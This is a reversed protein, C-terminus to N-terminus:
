SAGHARLASGLMYAVAKDNDASIEDTCEQTLAVATLANTIDSMDRGAAIGKILKYVGVGAAELQALSEQTFM